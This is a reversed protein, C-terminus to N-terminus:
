QGKSVRKLTTKNEIKEISIYENSWNIPVHIIPKGEEVYFELNRYEPFRACIDDWETQSTVKINNM